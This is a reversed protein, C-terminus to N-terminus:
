FFYGVVIGFNLVSQPGETPALTCNPDLPDARCYVQGKSAVPTGRGAFIRYHLGQDRRNSELVLDTNQWLVWKWQERGKNCDQADGLACFYSYTGGRSLGAEIGLSFPGFPIRLRPTIAIQPSVTEQFLALGVGGNIALWPTMSLDLAVGATGLPGALGGQAEITLKNVWWSAPSPPPAERSGGNVPSREAEGHWAPPSTPSEEALAKSTLTLLLGM